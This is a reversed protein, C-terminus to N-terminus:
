FVEEGETPIFPILEIGSTSVSGVRVTSRSPIIPELPDMDSQAHRQDMPDQGELKETRSGETTM